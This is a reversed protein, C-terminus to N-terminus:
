NALLEEFGINKNFKNQIIEDFINKNSVREGYLNIINAIANKNISKDLIKDKLEGTFSLNGIVPYHNQENKQLLQLRVLTNKPNYSCELRIEYYLDDKLPLINTTYGDFSGGIFLPMAQKMMFVSYCNKFLAIDGKNVFHNIGSMVFPMAIVLVICLILAIIFFKM